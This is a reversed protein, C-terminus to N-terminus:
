LRVPLGDLDNYEFNDVLYWAKKEHSYEIRTIYGDFLHVDIFCRSLMIIHFICPM